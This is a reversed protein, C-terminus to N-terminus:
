FGATCGTFTINKVTTTMGATVALPMDAADLNQTIEAPSCSPTTTGPEFARANVKYLVTGAAPNAYTTMMGSSFTGVVPNSAPVNLTYDACKTGMPCNMLVETPVNPTSSGFLPITVQRASGGSPTADQLAALKIDAGTPMSAPDTTTVQGQLIGPSTTPAPEPELPIDGMSTGNPVNFTITANYTVGSGDMAAVVIDYNGAPLPCLSFTGLNADALQELVVRDINNADPQEALVIITANPLLTGDTRKVGRGSITDAVSVEGAHLTPLLRLQGNGQEVISNCANFEINIDASQGAELMLRGGAIRGPPIKLGTNAQSSLELLKLTGDALEACNFGNVSACNNPSPTATGGPPNNELLHIRIQQYNGAPLAMTSGLTALICQGAQGGLLDIQMPNNTLDVLDVWGSATDGATDSIHARVKTVTVWVRNFQLDSPAMPGKCTPPDSITTTVTGTVAGVGGGDDSTGGGCSLLLGAVAVALAMGTLYPLVSTGNCSPKETM